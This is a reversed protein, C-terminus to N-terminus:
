EHPQYVLKLACTESPNDPNECSYDKDVALTEHTRSDTCVFIPAATDPNQPAGVPGDTIQAPEGIIQFDFGIPILKKHPHKYIITMSQVNLGQERMPDLASQLVSTYGEKEEETWSGWYCRSENDNSLNLFGSVPEGMCNTQFTYQVNFGERTDFDPCPELGGDAVLVVWGAALALLALVQRIRQRM